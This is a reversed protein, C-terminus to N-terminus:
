KSGNYNLQLDAIAIALCNRMYNPKTKNNIKYLVALKEYGQDIFYVLICIRKM